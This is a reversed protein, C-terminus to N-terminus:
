SSLEDIIKNLESPPLSDMPVSKCASLKGTQDGVLITDHREAGTAKLATIPSNHVNEQLVHLMRLQRSGYDLAWFRVEGSLHGTVAAVGEEQWEPCNTATACTPRNPDNIFVKGLLNGNIDFIHLYNSILTLINGNRYNISVSLVEGLPVDDHALERVFVLTRLDWVLARGGACGTVMVGCDVSLDLCTVAAGDHGCLTAKLSLSEGNYNWVRVTSDLCGTVFWKGTNCAKAATIPARHLNDHVSLIKDVERYRTTLAATRVIAGNGAGGFSWYKKQDDILTCLRGVGILQGKSYMIDGVAKDSVGQVGLKVTETAYTKVLVRHAAGVMCFPPTLPALVPLTGFDLVKDTIASVITRSPFPKRELQKPTQGFNQIQAITSARQIPDDMSDIDVEGEYTVHVFTNLEDVAHQGRQKYGFVLDVWKHLNKSVYSSELAKRNLQVFLRPDGKAWPPLTVDHVTKGKQTEGFDFGNTNELFDPLYFFEPILERVDQLNEESSSKWSRGVDHFLRDAVDFKGGQLALALRSFPELRMLYYLVYAACSYHTGYHFPPPDDESEYSAALSEYRERFQAARQEGLAGMPKSLDRFTKPDNLDLEESEYDAIVWPFVPYQTLDNFSRGALSNLQMLFDFNTMKGSTWQSVIKAKLNSIFKSYTPYATYSSSMISNPLRSQLIKTLVEEREENGDFAILTANNNVDFIELANQQLQYRRRFVSHLEAFSIRKSRHQYIVEHSSESVAAKTKSAQKKAAGAVPKDEIISDSVKFDKPRLSVKFNSKEREVRTIKPEQGETMTQEFGDLVYVADKCWLFLAKTVELGTCRRVNFSSEPYDGSQLLGNILEYSSSEELEEMEELTMDASQDGSKNPDDDEEASGETAITVEAATSGSVTTMETNGDEVDDEFEDADDVKAVRRLNLDKLLEATAVMHTSGMMMGDAAALAPQEVEETEDISYLGEFEYNPMLRRRQREPGESLDLKWRKTSSVASQRENAKTLRAKTAQIQEEQKSAFSSQTKPPVYGEWLSYSGKLQRLVKKWKMAGFALDDFGHRKWQSHNDVMKDTCRRALEARQMGNIITLDASALNTYRVLTVKQYEEVAVDQPVVSRQLGPFLALAREHVSDFLTQVRDHNKEIWDFFSAYKRKVSQQSARHMEAAEHVALLARFGGRSVVDITEVHGGEDIKVVLLENMASSRHQLLAVVISIAMQKINDLSGSLLHYLSFMLPALAANEGISDDEFQPFSAELSPSCRSVCLSQWLSTEKAAAIKALDRSPIHRERSPVLLITEIEPEVTELIAVQLEDDQRDIAWRLACALYLEAIHAMEHILLAHDTSSLSRAVAPKSFLSVLLEVCMKSGELVQETTCFGCVLQDLMVSCVGVCNALEILSGSEMKEKVIRRLYEVLVLHFSKVQYASAHVPFSRFMSSVSRAAFPESMSGVVVHQLLRTLAHVSGDGELPGGIFRETPTLGKPADALLSYRRARPVSPKQENILCLMQCFPELFLPTACYARLGSSVELRHGLLQLIGRNTSEAKAALETDGKGLKANRGICEAVLALIGSAPDSSKQTYVADLDSCESDFVECLQDPDMTPLSHMHLIPVFLLNSLVSTIASACTSFRPISTIFPGFDGAAHFAAEFSSSSQLMLVLLRVVAAGTAEERCGELMTAFWVPTLFGAFASLFNQAQSHKPHVPSDKDKSSLLRHSLYPQGPSAVGGTHPQLLIESIPAGSGRAEPSTAASAIIENVGDVILEELLRVLYLRTVTIPKMKSEDEIESESRSAQKKGAAGGSSTSSGSVTFVLAEALADLDSPTLMFTLVRRLLNKCTQLFQNGPDGGVSVDEVLPADFKWATAKTAGQGNPMEAESSVKRPQVEGAAFLESAEVMMHLTWRVVGAMHLRRANFAKHGSKTDVLRNFVNMLRMTLAPGYKKLDWVQHNLLVHKVAELDSILWHTFPMRRASNGPGDFFSKSATPEPEFGYVGLGVCQDLCESDVIPKEQLLLALMRYGGGHQMSELNPAHRRCSERLVKLAIALSKTSSTMALVPMLVAPGGIWQLSDSFSTPTIFCSRGYAIADTALSDNAFNLRALNVVRESVRRRGERSSDNRLKWLSAGPNLGLLVCEVPINCFLRLAQLTNNGSHLLASSGAGELRPISRRRLASAVSGIEGTEALASFLSSATASLSLRQPRDGWLLGPFDPGYAFLATADLELLVTSLMLVPGVEWLPMKGRVIGSAALAPNPAGIILKSNPPLNVTDVKIDTELPRGDIYIAFASKRSMMTRKGPAYTLMIHHWVGPVLPSVPFSIPEGRHSASSMVNFRQNQIDFWVSFFASSQKSTAEALSPSAIDLIYFNGSHGAAQTAHHRMWISYSFGANSLPTWVQETQTQATASANNADLDLASSDVSEIEIFKLRGDESAAKLREDLKVQHMLVGITNISDGGLILRPFRESKKALDNIISLREICDAEFQKNEEDGKSSLHQFKERGIASSIVPLRVRKGESTESELIPGAICRLIGVFDMYSTGYAAVRGLLTLMESVLPNEKNLLFPGFEQENTLSYCLACSSLQPLTSAVHSPLTLELISRMVSKSFDVQDGKALHLALGIALRVADPNRLSKIKSAPHEKGKSEDGNDKQADGCAAKSEIEERRQSSWAQQLSPDIHALAMEMVASSLATDHELGTAAWSTALDLYLARQRIYNRNLAAPSKSSLQSSLSDIVLVPPLYLPVTDATSLPNRSKVGISADWLSVVCEYVKRLAESLAEDAIAKDISQEMSLFVNLCEEYGRCERFADRALGRAELVSRIINLLEAQRLLVSSSLTSGGLTSLNRLLKLVFDMDRRLADFSAYAALYAEFVNAAGHCAEKGLHDLTLRLLSHLNTVEDERAFGAKQGSFNVPQHAVLLTLVRYVVIFSEDWSTEMPPIDTEKAQDAVCQLLANLNTTLIGSEVMLPAVRQDFQLLKELTQGLYVADVRLAENSNTMLFRSLCFFVEVTAHVPSVQEIVGQVGTLVFELIKLGFSKLDDDEYCPFALLCFTLIHQRSELLTYNEPHDAFIQLTAELVALSVDFPLPTVTEPVSDEEGSRLKLATQLSLHALESLNEPVTPSPLDPSMPNQRVWARVLPNSRNALNELIVLARSNMALKLDGEAWSPETPTCALTPLLGILQNGHTKTSHHIAYQLVAYGGAADFDKMLDVSSVKCSATILHVVTKIAVWWLGAEEAEAGLLGQAASTTAAAQSGVSQEVMGTLEKIDDTMHLIMKREHIFWVLQRTLCGEAFAEIVNSAAHAVHIGSRPYSAGSLALLGFLHPRLQEGVAADKCLMVLLRAVKNTARRAIPEVPKSPPPPPPTEVASQDGDAAAATDDGDRDANDGGGDVASDEEVQAARAAHQLELVRLLRLCHILNPPLEAEVCRAVFNPCKAGALLVDMDSRQATAVGTDLDVAPANGLLQLLDRKWQAEDVTKQKAALVIKQVGDGLATAAATVQKELRADQPPPHYAGGSANHPPSSGGWSTARAPAAATPTTRTGFSFSSLNSRFRYTRLLVVM